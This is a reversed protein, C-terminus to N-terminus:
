LKLWPSHRAQNAENGLCNLIRAPMGLNDSFMGERDEPDPPHSEPIICADSFKCEGMSLFM